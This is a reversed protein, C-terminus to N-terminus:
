HKRVDFFVQMDCTKLRFSEDFVDQGCEALQYTHSKDVQDYHIFEQNSSRIGRDKKETM